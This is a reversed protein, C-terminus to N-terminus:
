VSKTLSRNSSVMNMVCVYWIHVSKIMFDFSFLFLFHLQWYEKEARHKNLKFCCKHKNKDLQWGLDKVNENSCYAIIAITIFFCYPAIPFHAYVVVNRVYNLFNRTLTMLCTQLVYGINTCMCIYKDEQGKKLNSLRISSDLGGIIIGRSARWLSREAKRGPWVRQLYLM